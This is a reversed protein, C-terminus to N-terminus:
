CEAEGRCRLRERYNAYLKPNSHLVTRLSVENWRLEALERLIGALEGGVGGLVEQLLDEAPVARDPCHSSTAVYGHM